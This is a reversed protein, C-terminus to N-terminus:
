AKSLIVQEAPKLVLYHAIREPEVPDVLCIDRRKFFLIPKLALEQRQRLQPSVLVLVDVLGRLTYYFMSRCLRSSDRQM